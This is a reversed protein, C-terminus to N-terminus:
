TGIQARVWDCRQTLDHCDPPPRLVPTAHDLERIVGELVAEFHMQIWPNATRVGDDELTIVGRPLLVVADFCAMAALAKAVYRETAELDFAFRYYIWFAVMDLPSRDCIFGDAHETHACMEDLLEESLARRQAMDLTHLDLGGEIRQRMGEEVYPVDLECALAQALTSKGTGAAGSIGLRARRTM